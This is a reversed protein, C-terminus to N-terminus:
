PVHQYKKGNIVVFCHNIPYCPSVQSARYCKKTYATHLDVCYFYESEFNCYPCGFLYRVDKRRLGKRAKEMEEKLGPLICEEVGFEWACEEIYDEFKFNRPRAIKKDIKLKRRETGDLERVLVTIFGM